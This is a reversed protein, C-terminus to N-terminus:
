AGAAGASILGAGHRGGSRRQAAGACAKHSIREALRGDGGASAALRIILCLTLIFSSLDPEHM